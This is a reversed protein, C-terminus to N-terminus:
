TQSIWQPQLANLKNPFNLNLLLSWIKLKQCMNLCRCCLIKRIYAMYYEDDIFKCFFLLSIWVFFFLCFWDCSLWLYNYTLRLTGKKWTYRFHPNKIKYFGQTNEVNLKFFGTWKCLHFNFVLIVPNIHTVAITRILM